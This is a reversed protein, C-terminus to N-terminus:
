CSGSANKKASANRWMRHSGKRRDMDDGDSAFAQRWRQLTILGVGLLRALERGRAGDAMGVDLAQLAKQRDGPSTL